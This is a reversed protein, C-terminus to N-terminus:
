RPDKPICLLVPHAWIDVAEIWEQEQLAKLGLSQVSFLLMLSTENGSHRRLSTQGAALSCMLACERGNGWICFLVSMLLSTNIFDMKFSFM